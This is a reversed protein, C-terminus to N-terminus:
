KKKVVKSAPNLNIEDIVMKARSNIVYTVAEAVDDPILYNSEDDGPTFSLRDFFPTKVMGPNILCVRVQDKSCEERLAQTFGRLAFKSACYITGKRSGKLAAESGIYILDSRVKHKLFSLLARTIFIPSIFNLAVLAEIQGFSFEELSGFQGAGASFVVADLDPFQQELGRIKKPLEQLQGLDLQVPHFNAMRDTFQSCDRSIGIVHHGQQLLKRAIARGIGSSAGTVLITRKLGHM